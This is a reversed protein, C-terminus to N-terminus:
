AGVIVDTKPVACCILICGPDPPEAPEVVYDVEGALLRCMCTHCVGSRCSYDPRLGHAEALELISGIGPGWALGVGSKEFVVEFAPTGADDTPTTPAKDAGAKLISAPGFFEYHIRDEAVGWDLLGNYLSRMFPTPGCLYFDYTAPPLLEQLADVTVHGVADHNQGEADEPRPRSYRVHLHINHHDEALRRMHEGLAHERGSRTGHIFWVPRGSGAAVVANLMSIM